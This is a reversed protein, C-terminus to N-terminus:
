SPLELTFETRGPVSEVRLRGNMREALERAIALGLGSGQADDSTFFPEFIRPLVTRHIGLGHDRVALCVSGNARTASVFIETGEPTHALANDILIRVIQAVRERDCTARIPDRQLRLQLHSDHQALAPTFEATVQRALEGV